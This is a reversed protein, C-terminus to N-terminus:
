MDEDDFANNKDTKYWQVEVTLGQDLKTHRGKWPVISCMLMMERTVRVIRM